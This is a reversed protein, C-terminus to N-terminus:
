LIRRIWRRLLSRPQKTQVEAVYRGCGCEVFTGYTLPDTSMVQYGCLPCTTKDQGEEPPEPPSPPIVAVPAEKWPFDDSQWVDVMYAWKGTM